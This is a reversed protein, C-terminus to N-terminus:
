QDRLHKGLPLRKLRAATIAVAITTTGIAAGALEALYTWPIALSDPPPDFVHQLMAVLMLALPLGLGAALLLGAALVLAAESWAFAGISRLTAGLAAMTAFEHRREIVTLAVCLAMAAATLAITFAEEIQSIGRLDFRTISSVTQQAQQDINKVITGDSNTARAIAGATAAPSGSKVFVANAGGEHDVSGLYSINAVM